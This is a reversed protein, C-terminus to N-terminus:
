QVSLTPFYKINFFAASKLDGNFSIREHHGPVATNDTIFLRRLLTHLPYYLPWSPFSVFGTRLKDPTALTTTKRATKIGANQIHVRNSVFGKLVWTCTCGVNNLLGM